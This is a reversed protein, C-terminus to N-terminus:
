QKYVRRITYNLADAVFLSTGDTTIGAPCYFYVDRASKTDGSDPLNGNGDRVNVHSSKGAITTVTGDSITVRRITQGVVPNGYVVRGWDTVYLYTGDTTIGEPGSFTAKTGIGDKDGSTGATGAITSVVGTAIVVKRITYNNTDTVYLNTGDTTIRIPLNFRAATGTGDTSNATGPSGALTTVDGTSIVVKRIAQNDTVYLNTGDTTIGIPYAFRATGTTTTGNVTTNGTGDVSGSVGTGALATMTGTPNGSTDYALAIKQIRYNSTDTVYLNTGDTTIDTPGNLTVATGTSNKLPLTTVKTIGGDSYVRRIANNTSDLVFFTSGDTTTIGVPKGFKAPPGNATSYDSFGSTGTIGAVTEVRSTSIDSFTASLPAAQIAGGMLGIKVATSSTYTGFATTSDIYMRCNYNQSVTSDSASVLWYNLAAKTPDTYVKQIGTITKVLNKNTDVFSVTGNNSMSWTGLAVSTDQPNSNWDYRTVGSYIHFTASSTGKSATFSLTRGTKSYIDSVGLVDPTSAVVSASTSGGGCGSIFLSLMLAAMLLMTKQM